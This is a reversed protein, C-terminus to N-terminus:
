QAEIEVTFPGRTGFDDPTSGRYADVILFYRGAPIGGAPTWILDSLPTTPPEDPNPRPDDNCAVQATVSTCDTGRLSLIPDWSARTVHARFRTLGAGLDIAYVVDAGGSGGCNSGTGDFHDRAAGTSDSITARGGALTVVRVGACTDHPPPDRCVYDDCRRNPTMM